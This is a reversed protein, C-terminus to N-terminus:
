TICHLKSLAWGNIVEFIEQCKSGGWTVMRWWVSSGRGMQRWWVESRVTLKAFLRMRTALLHLFGQFITCSRERCLVEFVCACLYFLYFWWENKENNSLNEGVYLKWCQERFAIWPTMWKHRSWRPFLDSTQYTQHRPPPLDSPSTVYSNKKFIYKRCIKLRIKM